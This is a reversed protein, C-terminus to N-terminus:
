RSGQSRDFWDAQSPSAGVESRLLGELGQLHEAADANGQGDSLAGVSDELDTKAAESAQDAKRREERPDVGLELKAFFQRAVKRAEEVKLKRVDGLSERQTAKQFRYQVVYVTKSSRVRVGFGPMEPDWHIRDTEGAGLKLRRVFTDSFQQPIKVIEASQLAPM